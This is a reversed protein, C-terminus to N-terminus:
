AKPANEIANVAAILTTTPSDPIADLDIEYGAHGVGAFVCVQFANGNVGLEALTRPLNLPGTNAGACVIIVATAHGLVDQGTAEANLPGLLAEHTMQKSLLDARTLKKSQQPSSGKKSRVPVNPKASM